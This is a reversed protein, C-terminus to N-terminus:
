LEGASKKIGNQQLLLLVDLKLANDKKSCEVMDLAKGDKVFVLACNRLKAGFANEADYVVQFLKIDGERFVVTPTGSYSSPSKVRNQVFMNAGAGDWLDSCAATNILLIAIYFLRKM